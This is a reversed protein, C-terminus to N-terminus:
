IGVCLVCQRVQQLTSGAPKPEPKTAFRRLVLTLLTALLLTGWTLILLLVTQGDLTGFALDTNISQASLEQYSDTGMYWLFAIFSLCCLAAGAKLLVAAGAMAAM